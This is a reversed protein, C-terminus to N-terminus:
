ATPFLFGPFYDPKFPNLGKVEAGTCHEVLQAICRSNTLKHIRLSPIFTIYSFEYIEPQPLFFSYTFLNLNGNLGLNKDPAYM